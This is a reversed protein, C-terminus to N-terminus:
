VPDLGTIRNLSASPVEAVKSRTTQCPWHRNDLIGPLSFVSFHNLFFEIAEHFNKPTGFWSSSKRDHAILFYRISDNPTEAPQWILYVKDIDWLHDSYM